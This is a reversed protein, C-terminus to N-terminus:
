PSGLEFADYLDDLNYANGKLERRLRDVIGPWRQERLDRRESRGAPTRKGNKFM